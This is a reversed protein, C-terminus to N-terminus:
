KPIEQESIEISPKGRKLRFPVTGAQSVFDISYKYSGLIHNLLYIAETKIGLEVNIGLFNNWTSHLAVFNSIIIKVRM